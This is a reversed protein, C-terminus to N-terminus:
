EGRILVISQKHTSTHARARVRTRINTHTHSYIHVHIYMHSHIHVRIVCAYLRVCVCVCSYVCVGDRVAGVAFLVAFGADIGMCTTCSRYVHSVVRECMHPTVHTM